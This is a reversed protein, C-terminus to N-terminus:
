IYTNILKDIDIRTAQEFRQQMLQQNVHQRSQILTVAVLTTSYKQRYQLAKSAM